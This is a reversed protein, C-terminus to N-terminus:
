RTSSETPLSQHEEDRNEGFLGLTPVIWVLTVLAASCLALHPKYPALVIGFAYLGLSGWHKLRVSSTLGSKRHERGYQCDVMYRLILFAAGTVLMCTCYIAVSFSDMSHEVVYETFFPILSLAFLWSLNCWLIRNNCHHLRGILEHHNVWYVGTFTFSLLYVALAPLLPRLGAIGTEHPVKLELVMITITVAIVGDSFAELRGPSFTMAM